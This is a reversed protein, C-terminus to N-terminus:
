EKEGRIVEEMLALVEEKTRDPRDNWRAISANFGRKGLATELRDAIAWGDIGTEFAVRVCAGDVCFMVADASDAHTPDGAADRARTHQTWGREILAKARKLGELVDSM